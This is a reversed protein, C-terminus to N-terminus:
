NDSKTIMIGQPALQGYGTAISKDHLQKMNGNNNKHDM